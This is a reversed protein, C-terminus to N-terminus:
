EDEDGRHTIQKCYKITDAPEIFFADAGVQACVTSSVCGGGIIIRSFSHINAKELRRIIQKMALASTSLLGCLAIVDPRYQLAAATFTEPSVNIGLDIVYFGELELMGVIIDKGIDHIDNEVVGILITAAQLGTSKPRHDRITQIVDRYIRGAFIMDALYYEGSEFRNGVMAVGQNMLPLLEVETYDKQLLLHILQHVQEQELDAVARLLLNENAIDQTMYRYEM